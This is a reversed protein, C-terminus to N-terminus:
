HRERLRLRLADDLAHRHDAPPLRLVALHQVHRHARDAVGLTLRDTVLSAYPPSMLARNTSSAIPQKTAPSAAASSGTPSDTSTNSDFPAFALPVSTSTVPGRTVM